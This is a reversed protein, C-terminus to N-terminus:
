DSKESLLTSSLWSVAIIGAMVVPVICKMMLDPRLVGMASIGVQSSVSFLELTLKGEKQRCRPAASIVFQFERRVQLYWLQAPSCFTLQREVSACVISCIMGLVSAQAACLTRLLDSDIDRTTPRPPWSSQPRQTYACTLSIAATCGM